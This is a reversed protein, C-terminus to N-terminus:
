WFMVRVIKAATQITQSLVDNLKTFSKEAIVQIRTTSLESRVIRACVLLAKAKLYSSALASYFSDNIGLKHCNKTSKVIMCKVNVEM